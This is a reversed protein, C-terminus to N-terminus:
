RYSMNGSHMSESETCMEAM